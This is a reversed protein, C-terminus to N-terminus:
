VRFKHPHTHGRHGKDVHIRGTEIGTLAELGVVIPGLTHGDCPSATFRRSM